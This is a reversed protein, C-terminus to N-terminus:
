NTSKQKYDMLRKLIKKQDYSVYIRTYLVDIEVSEVKYELTSLGDLKGTESAMARALETIKDRKHTHTHLSILM